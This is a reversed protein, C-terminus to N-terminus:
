PSIGRDRYEQPLSSVRSHMTAAYERVAVVGEETAEYRNTRGDVEQKHCKTLGREELADLNQYVRAHPLNEDRWAELERQVASGARPSEVLIALIELQFRSM